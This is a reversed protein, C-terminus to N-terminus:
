RANWEAISYTVGNYNIAGVEAGDEIVLAPTYSGPILNITGIKAGASITLKGLNRTTIACSDITDIEADGSITVHAQHALYVSGYKGGIIQTKTGNVFAADYAKFGEKVTTTGTMVCDTMTANGYHSFAAAINNGGNNVNLTANLNEVVLKNITYNGGGQGYHGVEVFGSGVVKLDSVAADEGQAPIFGVYGYSSGATTGTGNTTITAGNGDVKIPKGAPAEILTETNEPINIDASIIVNNGATVAKQIGAVNSAATGTNVTADSAQEITVNSEYGKTVNIKKVTAGAEIIVKTKTGLADIKEVVSGAKITVTMAKNGACKIYDVEAGDVVLTTNDNAIRITGIKGNNVVLNGNLAVVDFVEYGSNSTTGYIECNNLTTNGYSFLAPSFGSAASVVETNIMKVNNLTTNFVTGNPDWYGAMASMMEGEITLDNVTVLSGNASGFVNGCAPFRGDGWDIADESTIDMTVTTNNGNITIAETATNNSYFTSDNVQSDETAFYLTDSIKILTPYTANVDYQNNFSDKEYACQAALVNIGFQITPINKGDHNAENGITEPMDVKIALYHIENPLLKEEELVNSANFPAPEGYAIGNEDKFAEEITRAAINIGFIPDVGAEAFTLKSVALIDSLKIDAGDKTKGVTEGYINLLANYKLKLTGKNEIKLVVVETHGPEWLDKKFLDTAGDLKAWNKGDLTYEVNIDLNGATIVNSASSASDTFWAYTTGLLMGLCLVLTIMSLALAKKTQKFM